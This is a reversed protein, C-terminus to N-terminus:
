KKKAGGLSGGAGRYADMLRNLETEIERLENLRLQYMKGSAESVRRSAAELETEKERIRRKLDAKRESM